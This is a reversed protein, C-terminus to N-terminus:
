AASKFNPACGVRGLTVSKSLKDQSVISTPITEEPKAVEINKHFDGSINASSRTKSYPPTPYIKTAGDDTKDIWSNRFLLFNVLIARGTGM